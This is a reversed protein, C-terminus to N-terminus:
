PLLVEPSVKKHADALDQIAKSSESRGPDPLHTQWTRRGGFILGGV